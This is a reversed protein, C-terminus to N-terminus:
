YTPDDFRDWSTVALTLGIFTVDAVRELGAGVHVTRPRFASRKSFARTAVVDLGASWGLDRDAGAVRPRLGGLVGIHVHHGNNPFYHYVDLPVTWSQDIRDGDGDLQLGITGGTRMAGHWSAESGFRVSARYPMRSDTELGVAGDLAVIPDGVYYNHHGRWAIGAGLMARDPTDDGAGSVGAEVTTSVTTVYSPPPLIDAYTPQILALDEVTFGHDEAWSALEPVGAAIDDISGTHHRADVARVTSIDASDNVLAAVACPCGDGDLFVPLRGPSSEPAPFRRESAYDVLVDLLHDRRRRRDCTLHAPTSARLVRATFLLHTAIRETEGDGARPLRGHRVAFSLDGIRTNITDIPGSM